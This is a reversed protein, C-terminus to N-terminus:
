PKILEINQTSIVLKSIDRRLQVIIAIILDIVGARKERNKNKFINRIKM